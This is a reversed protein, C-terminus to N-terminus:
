GFGYKSDEAHGGFDGKRIYDWTTFLVVVAFVVGLWVNIFFMAVVLPVAVIWAFAAVVIRQKRTLSEEESV